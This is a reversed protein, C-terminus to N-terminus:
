SDAFRKIHNHFKQLLVNRVALGKDGWIFRMCHLPLLSGLLPSRRHWHASPRKVDMVEVFFDHACTGVSNDPRRLQHSYAIVVIVIQPWNFNGSFFYM